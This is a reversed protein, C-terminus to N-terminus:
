EGEADQGSEVVRPADAVRAPERDRGGLMALVGALARAADASLSISVAAHPAGSGADRAAPAGVDAGIASRVFRAAQPDADMYAREALKGAILGYAVVDGRKDASIRAGDDADAVAAVSRAVADAAAARYRSWRIAALERGRESTRIPTVYGGSGTPSAIRLPKM